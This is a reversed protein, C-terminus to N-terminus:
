KVTCELTWTFDKSFTITGTSKDGKCGSITYEYTGPLIRWAYDFSKYEFDYEEPGSLRISLYEGTKNKVDLVIKPREDPTPSPPPVKASINECLTSMNYGYAAVWGEIGDPTRIFLYKCDDYQGIIIGKEKHRIVGIKDKDLGHGPILHLPLEIGEADFQYIPMPTSTPLPTNTTTSTPAPTKTSTPTPTITPGFLKGPGCGTM